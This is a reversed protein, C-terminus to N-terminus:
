NILTRVAFFVVVPPLTRLLCDGSALVKKGSFKMNESALGDLSDVPSRASRAEVKYHSGLSRFTIPIM